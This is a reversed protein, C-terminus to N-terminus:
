FEARIERWAREVAPAAWFSDFMYVRRPDSGAFRARHAEFSVAKRTEELTLGRDAARQVERVTYELLDLVQAAYAKDRMVAGHGPVLAAADIDLLRRMVGIWQLPFSNLAFPTPAVVLDGTVLTRTSPVYVLADGPTNGRGLSLIEVTRDGLDVTLRDRFTVAPHVFRVEAFRREQDDFREYQARALEREFPSLESGDPKRGTDVQARLAERMAPLRPRIRDALKSGWTRGIRATEEHAVVTVGPFAEEYVQNGYLHDYHWHTNVVFRVPKATLKRVEALVDRAAAPSYNTDVILAADRGVILTSNGDVEDPRDRAVFAFVGDAVPQVDFNRQAAAPFPVLALVLLGSLSRPTLPM